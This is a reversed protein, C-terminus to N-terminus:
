RPTAPAVPAARSGDDLIRGDSHLKLTRDRWRVTDGFLGGAWVAFGFLDRLPILWCDRWVNRDGLVGAGVWVGAAMRLGLAAAGAWWQHAGFAVLSWLTAHTVVYGYYGGARSVRISRFLM